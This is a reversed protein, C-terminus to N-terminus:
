KPVPFRSYYLGTNPLLVVQSKDFIIDHKNFNMYKAPRYFITPFLFHLRSRLDFEFSAAYTVQMTSWFTMNWHSYSRHTSIEATNNSCVSGRPHMSSKRNLVTSCQARSRNSRRRLRENVRDTVERNEFSQKFLIRWWWLGKRADAKTAIGNGNVPFKM